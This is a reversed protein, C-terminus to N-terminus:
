WYLAVITLANKPHCAEKYADQWKAVKIGPSVDEGDAM